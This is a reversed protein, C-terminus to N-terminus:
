LCSIINIINWLSNINLCQLHLHDVVILLTSLTGDATSTSAVSSTLSRCAVLLTSLTEDAKSTSAVASIFINLCPNRNFRITTPSSPRPLAERTFESKLAFACEQEAGKVRIHFITIHSFEIAPYWIILSSCLYIFRLESHGSPHAIYYSV